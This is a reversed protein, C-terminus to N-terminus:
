KKPGNLGHRSSIQRLNKQVAGDFAQTGHQNLAYTLDGRRAAAIEQHTPMRYKGQVKYKAKSSMVFMQFENVAVSVNSMSKRRQKVMNEACTGHTKSNLKKSSRKPREQRQLASAYKAIHVTESGDRLKKKSSSSGPKRGRANVRFGLISALARSGHQQVGYRLDNRGADRLEQHTPMRYTNHSLEFQAKRSSVFECVEKAAVMIDDWHRHARRPSQLGLRKAVSEPGGHHQVAKLVDLRGAELLHRGTPFRHVENASQEWL